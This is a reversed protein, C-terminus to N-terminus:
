IIRIYKQMDLFDAEEKTLVGNLINENRSLRIKMLTTKMLLKFKVKTLSDSPVFNEAKVKVKVRNLLLPWIKNVEANNEVNIEKSVLSSNLHLAFGIEAIGKGKCQVEVDKKFSIWRLCKILNKSPQEKFELVLSVKSLNDLVFFSEFIQNNELFKLNLKKWLIFNNKFNDIFKKITNKSFMSTVIRQEILKFKKLTKFIDEWNEVTMIEGGKDDKAGSTIIKVRSTAECVALELFENKIFNANFLFTFNISKKSQLEVKITKKASTPFKEISAGFIIINLYKGSQPLKRLLIEVTLAFINEYNTSDMKFSM